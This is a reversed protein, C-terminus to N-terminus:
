KRKGDDRGHSHTSPPPAGGKLFDDIQQEEDREDPGKPNLQEMRARESETLSPLHRLFLVLKWSDEDGHEGGGFAPMGTFRVGNQIIAFLEGDALSQTRSERLDPPKPYLGRGFATDGSGDNGHCIFCHDAFHEMGERVNQPSPRLPNRRQRDGAPIAMHRLQRAVLTEVRGPEARASVGSRQVYFVGVAAAVVIALVLVILTRIVRLVGV